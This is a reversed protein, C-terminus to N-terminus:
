DIRLRDELRTFRDGNYNTISCGRRPSKCNFDDFLIVADRLALLARLDHRLLKKPSPLYVSVIVLTGHGTVALRCGTAEMNILSPTIIPCRHLSRKYYVATGRERAFMRGTRLQAYGAIACAKPRSLKLFAEEVLAIDISHESM